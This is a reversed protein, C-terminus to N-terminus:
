QTRVRCYMRLESSVDTIRQRLVKGHGSDHNIQFEISQPTNNYKWSFNYLSWYENSELDTTVSGLVEGEFQKKFNDSNKEKLYVTASGKTPSLLDFNFSADWNNYCKVSKPSEAAYSFTSAFLFVIAILKM